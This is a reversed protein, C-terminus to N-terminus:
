SQFLLRSRTLRMTMKFFKPEIELFKPINELRPSELSVRSIRRKWHFPYLLVTQVSGKSTRPRFTAGGCKLVLLTAAVAKRADHDHFVKARNGPVQLINQMEPSKFSVGSPRPKWYFPCLLVKRVSV